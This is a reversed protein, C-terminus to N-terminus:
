TSQIGPCSTSCTEDLSLELGDPTPYSVRASAQNVGFACARYRTRREFQSTGESRAGNRKQIIHSVRRNTHLVRPGYRIIEGQLRLREETRADGCAFTPRWDYFRTGYARRDEENCVAQRFPISLAEARSFSCTATARTSRAHSQRVRRERCCYGDLLRQSPSARQRTRRDPEIRPARAGKFPVVIKVGEVGEWEDELEELRVWCCECKLIRRGGGGSLSELQRASERGLGVGRRWKAARGGRAPPSSM